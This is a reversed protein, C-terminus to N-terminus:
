MAYEGFQRTLALMEKHILTNDCLITLGFLFDDGGLFDSVTGGAEQIILAGAACDWPNLGYEYFSDFRGCAVYAMDLAASGLRRIGRTNTNVETLLQLYEKQRGRNDYPFGTAVLSKSLNNQGSVTINKGNLYAGQGRSASFCEDHVPDYIVGLVLDKNQRLAVSTCYCPIGYLYNTTGDLPDIIWNYEKGVKKSTGEEAIFGSEPLLKELFSVFRREAEKDARSVLDNTGSKYLIENERILSQEQKLFLGVERSIDILAPLLKERM